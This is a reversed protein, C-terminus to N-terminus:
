QACKGPILPPLTQKGGVGRRNYPGVEAILGRNTNPVAPLVGFLRTGWGKRKKCLTPYAVTPLSIRPIGGKAFFRSLGRIEEQAAGVM